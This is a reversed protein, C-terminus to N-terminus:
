GAVVSPTLRVNMREPGRLLYGTSWLTEGVAEIRRARTVLERLIAQAEM